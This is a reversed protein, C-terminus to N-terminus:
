LKKEYNKRIDKKCITTKSRKKRTLMKHKRTADKKNNMTKRRGGYIGEKLIERRLTRITREDLSDFSFGEKDIDSFSSCSFDILIIEEVDKIVHLYYIIESLTVESIDRNRRSTMEVLLDPFGLVNVAIIKFDWSSEFQEDANDRSYIKEIVINKKSSRVEQRTKYRKNKFSSIKYGAPVQNLYAEDTQIDKMKDLYGSYDDHEEFKKSLLERKKSPLLSEVEPFTRIRDEHKFTAALNKTFDEKKKSLGKKDLKKVWEIISEVYDDSDDSSMINCVGPSVANVKMLTVGRPLTFTEPKGMEDLPIVGHSTIALVITKPYSTM